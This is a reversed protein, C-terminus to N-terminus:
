FLKVFKVFRNSEDINTEDFANLLCLANAFEDFKKSTLIEKRVTRLHKLVVNDFYLEIFALDSVDM